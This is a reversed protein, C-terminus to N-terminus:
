ATATGTKYKRRLWGLLGGGALILGPIGAGAVPGPVDLRSESITFVELGSLAVSVPTNITRETQGIVNPGNDCRANPDLCYSDPYVYASNLFYNVGIDYGSGFTPGRGIDNLTQYQGDPGGLDQRFIEDLTLNFIFGNRQSLSPTVTYCGTTNWNQPNFGGILQPEGTYTTTAIIIITPGLGDVTNHFDISNAGPSAAFVNTFLLSGSYTLGPTSELWAQIQDADSKTLLMGGLISSARTSEDVLSFGVTVALSLLPIKLKRRRTSAFSVLM